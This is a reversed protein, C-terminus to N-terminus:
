YVNMMVQVMINIIKVNSIRLVEKLEKYTKDIFQPTILKFIRGSQSNNHVKQSNFKDYDIGMECRIMYELDDFLIIDYNSNETIIETLNKDSISIIDVLCKSFELHNITKDYSNDGVILLMKDLSGIHYRLFKYVLELNQHEKYCISTINGVHTITQILDKLAQDKM